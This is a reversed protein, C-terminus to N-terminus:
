ICSSSAVACPLLEDPVPTLLVLMPTLCGPMLAWAFLKKKAEAEEDTMHIDHEKGAVTIPLM